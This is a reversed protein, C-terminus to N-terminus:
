KQCGFLWRSCIYLCLVWSSLAPALDQGLLFTGLNSHFKVIQDGRVCERECEVTRKRTLNVSQSSLWDSDRKWVYIDIQIQWMAKQYKVTSVNYIPIQWMKKQYKDCQRKTITVNDKPIQCMTKQYKDCQRKTNSVNDKPIQWMTKQHIGQHMKEGLPSLKPKSSSSTQEFEIRM